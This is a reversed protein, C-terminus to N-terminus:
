AVQFSRWDVALAALAPIATQSMTHYDKHREIGISAYGLAAAAALTSGSGMFPDLVVGRGLPLSTWVMQRLFRQPKLSPHPALAVERASTTESRLVDPLPKGDPTRRLGGTGWVRLNEAVTRERLPKRFVGWPEYCGRPTACVDPFEEEALKPRDGGRLTRVIRMVQGRFELGAEVLALTM